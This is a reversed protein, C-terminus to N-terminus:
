QSDVFQRQLERKNEESQVSHHERLVPSMEM